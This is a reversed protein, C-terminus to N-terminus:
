YFLLSPVAQASSAGQPESDEFSPVIVFIIEPKRIEKAERGHPNM